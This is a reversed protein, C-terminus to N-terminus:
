YNIVTPNAYCTGHLVMILRERKARHCKRNIAKIIGEMTREPDDTRFRFYNTVDYLKFKKNKNYMFFKAVALERPYFYLMKGGLAFKENQMGTIGIVDIKDPKGYEFSQEFKEEIKEFIDKTFTFHTSWEPYVMDVKDKVIVTITDENKIENIQSVLPNLYITMVPFTYYERDAFSIAACPYGRYRLERCYQVRRYENDDIILIM